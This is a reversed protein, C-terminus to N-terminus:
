ANGQMVIIESTMACLQTKNSYTGPVAHRTEATSWSTENMPRMAASPEWLTSNAARQVASGLMASHDLLWDALSHTVVSTQLNWCVLFYSNIIKIGLKYHIDFVM